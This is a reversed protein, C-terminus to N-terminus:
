APKDGLPLPPSDCDAKTVTVTNNRLKSRRRRQPQEAIKDEPLAAPGADRGQFARDAATTFDVYGGPVRRILEVDGFGAAQLMALVVAPVSEPNLHIFCDEDEDWHRRRRVVVQGFPNQYCAVAPQDRAVVADLDNWNFDDSM